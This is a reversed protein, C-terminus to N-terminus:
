LLKMEQEHGFNWKEIKTLFASDIYTQNLSVYSKYM